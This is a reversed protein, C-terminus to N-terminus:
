LSKLAFGGGADAVDAGGELAENFATQGVEDLNPMDPGDFHDHGAQMGGQMAMHMCEEPPMGNAMADNFAQTGADMCAGCMDEPFGANTAADMCAQGAAQAAAGPDMGNAMGEQFTNIGIEM